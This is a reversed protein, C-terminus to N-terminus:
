PLPEVKVRHRLPPINGIRFAGDSDVEGGTTELAMRFWDTAPELTVKRKERTAGAGEGETRLNGALELPPLLTLEVNLIESNELHWEMPRSILQPKGKTSYGAWVRYFGPQLGDFRFRGGAGPAMARNDSMRQASEGFEMAVYGESMGEPIGSVTGSISLGQQRRALRIEIGKVERGAVAEVVMGREKRLSSPYFTNAYIAESKGDSRIELREREFEPELGARLYYKGPALVLRFDGRDDTPANWLPPSAIPSAGPAGAMCEVVVHEVPDGSEDVVRGAIVARPTIELQYDTVHQGPKITLSPIAAGGKAPVHLFSARDTTPMYTGPRIAAISFHGDRDSMAGYALDIGNVGGQRALRVHVNGLPERTLAHIVTGELSGPQAHASAAFLILRILSRM